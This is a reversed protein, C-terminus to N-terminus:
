QQNDKSLSQTFPSSYRKFPESWERLCAKLCGEIDGFEKEVKPLIPRQHLLVPLSLARAAELKSYTSAGGSNKSVLVDIQYDELLQYEDKFAFPGIGKLWVLPKTASLSDLDFKPKVATRWIVKKISPLALLQQLLNESMQGASLLPCAYGQLKTLLEEDSVYESWLDKEQWHWASRQFRWCPIGVQQAAIVAKSSMTLAYPHTVDLIAGVNNQKLYNVLGGFQTFGGVVLECDVKPVRVLGALSYIVALGASHLADALYRADATGGLLLIKM